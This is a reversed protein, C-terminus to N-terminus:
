RVWIKGIKSINKNSIKVLYYGRAFNGLDLKYNSQTFFQDSIIRQGISNTIEVSVDENINNM